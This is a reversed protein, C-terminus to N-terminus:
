HIPLRETSFGVPSFFLVSRRLDELEEAGITRQKQQILRKLLHPLDVELYTKFRPKGPALERPVLRWLRGNTLIEFDLWCRDLYWEIQEPPYERHSGIRTPRDLSVHWANADAVVTAHRWFGPASHGEALAADLMEDDSFFPMIQRVGQLFTQYKLKWGLLQLVPQIFAQELSAEIGYHEVRTKQQAWLQLLGDAM